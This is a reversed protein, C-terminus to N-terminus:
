NNKLLLVIILISEALTPLHRQNHRCNFKGWKGQLYFLFIFLANKQRNNFYPHIGNLYKFIDM